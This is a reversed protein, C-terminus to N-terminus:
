QNLFTISNIIQSFEKEFYSDRPEKSIELVQNEKQLFYRVAEPSSPPLIIYTSLTGSSLEEVEKHLIKTPKWNAQAGCGNLRVQEDLEIGCDIVAIQIEIEYEQPRYNNTAGLKYNTIIIRDSLAKVFLNDPYTFAINLEKSTYTNHKIESKEGKVAATEANKKEVIQWSFFLTLFFGLLIGAMFYVIKKKRTKQKVVKKKIKKM